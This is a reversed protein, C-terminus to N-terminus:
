REQRIGIVLPLSEPSIQENGTWYECRVHNSPTADPGFDLYACFWALSESSGAIVLEGATLSVRVPGKQKKVKLAPVVADYPTPDFGTAAGFAISKKRSAALERIGDAIERLEEPTGSLDVDGQSSCSIEIM